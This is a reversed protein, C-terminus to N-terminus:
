EAKLKRFSLFRYLVILNSSVSGLTYAVWDAASHLPYEREKRLVNAVFIEKKKLKTTQNLIRGQLPSEYMLLFRDSQTKVARPHNILRTASFLACTAM